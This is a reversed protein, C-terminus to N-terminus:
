VVHAPLVKRGDWSHNSAVIFFEQAGGAVPDFFFGDDTGPFLREDGLTKMTVEHKQRGARAIFTVAVL